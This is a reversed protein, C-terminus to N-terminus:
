AGHLKTGFRAKEIDLYNEVIALEQELPILSQNTSDLSSRLLSALRGVTQEARIPDNPILSSISNLTNFLFHPHIRSELWRLRAEAELKRTREEAM